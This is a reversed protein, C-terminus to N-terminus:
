KRLYLHHFGGLFLWNLAAYTDPDKLQKTQEVYFRKRQEPTLDAVLTRLQEEKAELAEMSESRSM